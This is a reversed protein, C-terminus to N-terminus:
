ARTVEFTPVPLYHCDDPSGNEYIFMAFHGAGGLAMMGVHWTDPRYAIGIGSPVLFASLTDLDPGKDSGSKAVIALYSTDGLPLFSQTSFPHRELTEIVVPLDTFPARILALNAKADARPNQFDATFNTRPKAISADLM